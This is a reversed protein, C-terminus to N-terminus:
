LVDFNGVLFRIVPLSLSLKFWALLFIYVEFGGSNKKSLYNSAVAIELPKQEFESNPRWFFRTKGVPFIFM